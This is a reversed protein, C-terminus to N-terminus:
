LASFNFLQGFIWWCVPIKLDELGVTIGGLMRRRIEGTLFAVCSTIGCRMYYQVWKYVKIYQGLKRKSCSYIGRMCTKLMDHKFKVHLTVFSLLLKQDSSKYAFFCTKTACTPKTCIMFFSCLYNCSKFTLYSQLAKRTQLIFFVIRLHM